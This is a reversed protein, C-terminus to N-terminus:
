SIIKKFFLYIFSKGVLADRQQEEQKFLQPMRKADVVSPKHLGLKKALQDLSCLDEESFPIRSGPERFDGTSLIYDILSYVNYSIKTGNPRTFTFCPHQLPQFMIPDLEEEQVSVDSSSQTSRLSQSSQPSQCDRYKERKCKHAKDPSRSRKKGKGLSSQLQNKTSRYPLLRQLRDSTISARIAQFLESPTLGAFNELGM